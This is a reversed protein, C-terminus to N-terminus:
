GNLREHLSWGWMNQCFLLFLVSICVSKWNGTFAGFLGEGLLLLSSVVYVVSVWRRQGVGDGPDSGHHM